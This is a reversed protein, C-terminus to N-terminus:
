VTGANERKLANWCCHTRMGGKYVSMIGDHVGVNTHLGNIICVDPRSIANELLM